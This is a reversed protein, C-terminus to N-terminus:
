LGNESLRESFIVQPDQFTLGPRLMGRSDNLGWIYQVRSAIRFFIRNALM